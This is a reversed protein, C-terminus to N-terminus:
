CYLYCGITDHYGFKSKESFSSEISKVSNGITIALQNREFADVGISIVSKPLILNNIQNDEFANMDWLM